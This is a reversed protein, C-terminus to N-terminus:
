RSSSILGEDEEAAMAARQRVANVLGSSSAREIDTMTPTPNQIEKIQDLTLSPPKKKFEGPQDPFKLLEYTVDIAGGGEDGPIYTVNKYAGSKMLEEARREDGAIRQTVLEGTPKGGTLKAAVGDGINRYWGADSDYGGFSYIARSDFADNTTWRGQADPKIEVSDPSQYNTGNPTKIEAMFTGFGEKPQGSGYGSAAQYDKYTGTNVREYSADPTRWLGYEQGTNGDKALLPGGQLQLSKSFAKSQRNYKKVADDYDTLYQKYIDAQSM